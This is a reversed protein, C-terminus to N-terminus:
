KKRIKKVGEPKKYVLYIGVAVIILDLWGILSFPVPIILYAFWDVVGIIIMVIGLVNYWKM